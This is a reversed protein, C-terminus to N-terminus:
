FRTRLVIGGFSPMVSLKTARRRHHRGLILLTTGVVTAATGVIMTTAAVPLWRDYDQRLATWEAMSTVEGAQSALKRTMVFAGISVGLTSVGIGLATAGTITLRRGSRTLMRRDTSPLHQPYPGVYVPLVKPAGPSPVAEPVAPGPIDDDEILAVKPPTKRVSKPTGTADFRCNEERTKVATMKLNDLDEDKRWSWYSAQADDRFTIETMVQDALQVARCLHESKNEARWAKTLYHHAIDLADVRSAVGNMSALVQYSEAADVFARQGALTEAKKRQAAVDPPEAPSGALLLVCLIPQPTLM